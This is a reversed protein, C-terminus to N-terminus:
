IVGIKGQIRVNPHRTYQEQNDSDIELKELRKELGDIRADRINLQTTLHDVKATLSSIVVVLEKPYFLAKMQAAVSEEKLLAVMRISLADDDSVSRRTDPMALVLRAAIPMVNLTPKGKLRSLKGTTSAKYAVLIGCGLTTLEKSNCLIRCDM